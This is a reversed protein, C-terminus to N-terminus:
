AIRAVARDPSALRLRLLPPAFVSNVDFAACAADYADQAESMETIFVADADKLKGNGAEAHDIAGTWPVIDAVEIQYEPAVLRAIDALDGSGILAVRRVGRAAAAACLEDFQVRARRFFSFSHKLYSATLRSKEAFGKPTLYYAYRRAPVQGVKILGKRVCRKLYANTLGLAIDLDRALSRQTVCPDRDVAELVGLLIQDSANAKGLDTASKSM